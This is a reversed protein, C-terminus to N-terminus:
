EPQFIPHIHPPTIYLGQGVPIWLRLRVPFYRKSRRPYYQLIKGPHRCHHIKSGHALSHHVQTSVRLLDVGQRRNIQDYIVRNLHIGEVAMICQVQIGAYLKLAVPFAIGEQAPALLSERVESNYRGTGTNHVLNIQFIQGRYHEGLFLIPDTLGIWVGQHSCIGVGGHYIAQTYQSPAHTADFCLGPHQPLGNAHKNGLHNSETELTLEGFPHRCCIQHQGNGLHQATSAHNPLKHLKKTTTQVM